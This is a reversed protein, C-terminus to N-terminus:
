KSGLVDEQESGHYLSMTTAGERGHIHFALFDVAVVVTIVAIQVDSGGSPSTNPRDRGHPRHATKMGAM